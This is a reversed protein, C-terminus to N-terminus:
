ALVIAVVHAAIVAKSKFYMIAVRAKTTDMYHQISIVHAWRLQGRYPVESTVLEWLLVGLSYIDAEPGCHDGLVKEPAAYSLTVMSNYPDQMYWFTAEKSAVNCMCSVLLGASFHASRNEVDCMQGRAACCSLWAQLQALPHLTFM